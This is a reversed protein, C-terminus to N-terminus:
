LAVTGRVRRICLPFRSNQLNPCRYGLIRVAPSGALLRGAAPGTRVPSKEGGTKPRMPTAAESCSAARSNMPRSIHRPRACFAANRGREYYRQKILELDRRYKPVEMACVRMLLLRDLSVIRLGGEDLAGQGLFAYDLM